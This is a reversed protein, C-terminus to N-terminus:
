NEPPGPGDVLLGARREAHRFVGHVLRGTRQAGMRLGVLAPRVGRGGRGPVASLMGDAASIEGREALDTVVADDVRAPGGGLMALATLDLPEVGGIHPRIVRYTVPLCLLVLAARRVGGLGDPM